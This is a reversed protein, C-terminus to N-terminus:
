LAVGDFGVNASNGKNTQFKIFPGIRKISKEWGRKIRRRSKIECCSKAQEEENQAL